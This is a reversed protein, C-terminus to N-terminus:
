SFQAIAAQLQNDVAQPISDIPYQRAETSLIEEVHPTIGIGHYTEGCQTVYAYTTLKIYGTFDGLMSLPLYYQMIGKGYTTEGVVTALGYDRMTAVFVEAASGTSGNCLVTMDLDSYM